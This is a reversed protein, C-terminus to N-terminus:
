LEFTAPGAGSVDKLSFRASMTFIAVRPVSHTLSYVSGKVDAPVFTRKELIRRLTKVLVSSSKAKSIQSATVSTQCGFPRPCIM